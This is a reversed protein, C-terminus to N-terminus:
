ESSGRIIMVIYSSYEIIIVNCVIGCYRNEIALNLYISDDPVNYVARAKGLNFGIDRIFSNVSKRLYIWDVEQANYVTDYMNIIAETPAKELKKFNLSLEDIWQDRQVEDFITTSWNWHIKFRNKIAKNFDNENEEGIYFIDAELHEYNVNSELADFTLRTIATDIVGHLFIIHESQDEYVEKYDCM